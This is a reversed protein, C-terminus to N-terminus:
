ISNRNNRNHMNGNIDRTDRMDLHDRNDRMDTHDRNDGERQAMMQTGLKLMEANKQTNESRKRYERACATRGYTVGM